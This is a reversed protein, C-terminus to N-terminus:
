SEVAERLGSTFVPNRKGTLNPNFCTELHDGFITKLIKLDGSPTDLFGFDYLM